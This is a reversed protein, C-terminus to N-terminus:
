ASALVRRLLDGWVGRQRLLFDDLEAALRNSVAVVSAPEAFQQEVERALAGADNLDIWGLPGSVFPLGTLAEATAFFPTGHALCDLLKIKSGFRNAIPAVFAGTGTLERTLLDRDGEGLYTVNAHRWAPPVSAEDAGLVRVEVESGLQQLAPALRTALWEIAVRNPYHGISGVFLLRHAGTWSWRASSPDFAPAVVERIGPRGPFTPLDDRTLAVVASSRRYVWREFARVRLEAVSSSSSGCPVTGHRRLERYFAGERNLTITVRPIPSTYLSRVFSASPVYDVVAVDAHCRKLEAMMASDVYPHDIALAEYL